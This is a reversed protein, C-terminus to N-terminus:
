VVNTCEDVQSFPCYPSVLKEFLLQVYREENFNRALISKECFPTMFHNAISIDKMTYFNFPLSARMVQGIHEKHLTQLM